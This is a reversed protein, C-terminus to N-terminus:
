QKNIMKINYNVYMTKVELTVISTSITVCAGM